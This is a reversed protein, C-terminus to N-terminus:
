SQVIQVFKDKVNHPTDSYFRKDDITVAHSFNMAYYLILKTIFNFKCVPIYTCHFPYDLQIFPVNEKIIKGGYHWGGEFERLVLKGDVKSSTKLGKESYETCELVDCLVKKFKIM